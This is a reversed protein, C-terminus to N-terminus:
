LCGVFMGNEYFVILVKYDLLGKLDDWKCMNVYKKFVDGFINVKEFRKFTAVGGFGREVDRGNSDELVCM